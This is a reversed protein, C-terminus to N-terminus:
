LVLHVLAGKVEMLLGEIMRNLKLEAVEAVAVQEMFVMNVVALKVTLNERHLLNQTNPVMVVMLKIILDDWKSAAM